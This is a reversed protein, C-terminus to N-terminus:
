FFKRLVTNKFEEPKGRRMAYANAYATRVEDSLWLADFMGVTTFQDYVVVSKVYSKAFGLANDITKGQDFTQTAWDAVRGCGSLGCLLVTCLVSRVIDRKM